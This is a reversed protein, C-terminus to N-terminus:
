VLAGGESLSAIAATGTTVVVRQSPRAGVRVSAVSVISRADRQHDHKCYRLFHHCSHTTSHLESTSFVDCITKTSSFVYLGIITSSFEFLGLVQSTVSVIKSSSFEFLGIITSSFEYLGLIPSTSFEYLGWITFLCCNFDFLDSDLSFRRSTTSIVAAFTTSDAFHSTAM